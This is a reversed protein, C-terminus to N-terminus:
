NCKNQSRVEPFPTSFDPGAIESVEKVILHTTSRGVAGFPPITANEVLEGM